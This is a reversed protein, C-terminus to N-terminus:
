HYAGLFSINNHMCLLELIVSVNSGVLSQVHSDLKSKFVKFCLKSEGLHIPAMNSTAKGQLLYDGLKHSFSSISKM